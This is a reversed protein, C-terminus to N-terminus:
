ICINEYEGRKITYCGSKTVSLSACKNAIKIAKELNKNELWNTVLSALFVDGAGCVDYVEAPEAPYIIGKYKCGKEGLTTIIETTKPINYVSKTEIENLKIIANKYCSLNKKKTDVFIKSYKFNTCVKEILKETLYGKDYDSFVIVDYEKTPIDKYELSKIEKEIDYRIIQYKSKEDIFRIKKILSTDNFFADIESINCAMSSINNIVNGGMGEKKEKRTKKLIPVPAEPNLRDVTGFVYVDECSEGLILIKYQKQQLTDKSM